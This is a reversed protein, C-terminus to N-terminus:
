YSDIIAQFQSSSENDWTTVSLVQKEGSAAGGSTQGSGSAQGSGAATTANQDGGGQNEAPKSGGGCATLSSCVMAGAMIAAIWQRKRM